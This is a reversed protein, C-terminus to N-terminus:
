KPDIPQPVDFGAEKIKHRLIGSFDGFEQLTLLLKDVESQTYVREPKGEHIVLTADQWNLSTHVESNAAMFKANMVGIPEEWQKIQGVVIKSAM